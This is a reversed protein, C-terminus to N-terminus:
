CPLEILEKKPSGTINVPGRETMVLVDEIRVGGWGAEYLGPEVTFVTGPVLKNEFGVKVRPPEHIALGVGHGTGHLFKPLEGAKDFVDRALRDADNGTMGPRVGNLVAEQAALVLSYIHKQKDTAKGMVAMRTMDGMYGRYNAGFDMLIMHGKELLRDHSPEYHPAAATEGFAVITNFSCGDSHHRLHDNIVGAVEHETMGLRLKTLVHAYAEDTVRAAQKLMEIEAADKLLRQEAPIDGASVWEVSPVLRFLEVADSHLLSAPEYGLRKVRGKTRNAIIEALVKIGGPTEIKAHEAGSALAVSPDYRGDCIFTSRDREVLLFGEPDEAPQVINWSTPRFGTFYYVNLPQSVFLADLGRQQLTTRLRSIRQTCSM